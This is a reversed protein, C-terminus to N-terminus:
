GVPVGYVRAAAFDFRRALGLFERGWGSSLSVEQIAGTAAFLAALETRAPLAGAEIAGIRGDLERLAEDVERWPSWAFDNEPRALLARAERLVDILERQASDMASSGKGSARAIRRALVDFSDAM